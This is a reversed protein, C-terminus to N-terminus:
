RRTAKALEVEVRLDIEALVGDLGPDGTSQKLTSSVAKLRSVASLDLNGDLVGLKLSDLADLAQRGYQVARRRRETPDEYGQLAILADITGLSRLNSTSATTTSAPEEAVTFTGGAGTRRTGTRATALATGNPGYIRM